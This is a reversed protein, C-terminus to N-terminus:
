PWQEHGRMYLPYRPPDFVDFIPRMLQRLSARAQEGMQRSLAVTAALSEAAPSRESEPPLIGEMETASEILDLAAHLTMGWPELVSAPYGGDLQDTGRLVVAEMQEHSGDERHEVVTQEDFLPDFEVRDPRILRMEPFGFDVRTVLTGAGMLFCDRLAHAVFSNMQADVGAQEVFRRVQESPASVRPGVGVTASVIRDIADRVIDISNYARAFFLVRSTFATRDLWSRALRVRIGVGWRSCVIAVEDRRGSRVARALALGEARSLKDLTEAAGVLSDLPTDRQQVDAVAQQRRLISVLYDTATIIQLDAGQDANVAITFPNEPSGDPLVAKTERYRLVPFANLDFRWLPDPRFLTFVFDFTPRGPLATVDDLVGVIFALTEFADSDATPDHGAQPSETKNERM